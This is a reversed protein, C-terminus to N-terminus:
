DSGRNVDNMRYAVTDCQGEVQENIFRQFDESTVKDLPLSESAKVSIEEDKKESKGVENSPVPLGERPREARVPTKKKPPAYVKPKSTSKGKRAPSSADHVDKSRVAGTSIVLGDDGLGRVFFFKGSSFHLCGVAEDYSIKDRLTRCRHEHFFKEVEATKWATQEPHCFQPRKQFFEEFEAKAEEPYLFCLDIEEGQLLGLEDWLWEWYDAADEMAYSKDGHPNKLTCSFGAHEGEVEYSWIRQADTEIIYRKM